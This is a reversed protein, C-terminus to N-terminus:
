MFTHACMSTHVETWSTLTGLPVLRQEPPRCPVPHRSHAPTNWDPSRPEWTTRGSTFPTVTHGSGERPRAPQVRSSQQIRIVQHEQFCTWCCVRSGLSSYKLNSVQQHDRHPVWFSPRCSPLIRSSSPYCHRRGTHLALSSALSSPSPVPALRSRQHCGIPFTHNVRATVVGTTKQM